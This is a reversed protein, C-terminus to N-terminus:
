ELKAMGGPGGPVEKVRIVEKTDETFDIIRNVIVERGEVHWDSHLTFWLGEATRQRLLNYSFKHVAGVIGGIVSVSDTLRVAAKVVVSEKEDVWARGAAKNLFKEKLNKESLKKKAPEFDIILASRGDIIERGVITFSFRTLLEEGMPFDAEEYPKDKAAPETAAANTSAPAAVALPYNKKTKAKTKKLVGRSNKFEMKKSRSYSYSAKFKREIERENKVQELMQKLVTDVPPLPEEAAHVRVAVVAAVCLLLLLNTRM